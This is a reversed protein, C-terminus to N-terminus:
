INILMLLYKYNNLYTKFEIINFIYYKNISINSFDIWYIKEISNVWFISYQLEGKFWKIKSFNGSWIFFGIVRFFSIVKIGNKNKPFQLVASFM